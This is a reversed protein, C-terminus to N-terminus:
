GRDVSFSGPGHAALLLMGGGLGANKLVQIMQLRDGHMAPHWHVLWTVLVLYAFGALAAPRVKLGLAILLALALEFVGVGRAGYTAFPLGHGSIVAAAHGPAVLKLWGSYGFIAVLLLRGLLPGLASLAASM